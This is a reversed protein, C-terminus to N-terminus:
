GSSTSCPVTLTNINSVGRWRPQPDPDVETPDPDLDVETPDPDPHVETPDPDRHM